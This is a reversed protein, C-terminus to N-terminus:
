NREPLNAIEIALAYAREEDGRELTRSFDHYESDSCFLNSWRIPCEYCTLKHQRKYECLWCYNVIYTDYNLEKAAQEKIGVSCPCSYLYGDYIVIGDRKIIEAIKNWLERHRRVAEQKTLPLIEKTTRDTNNNM